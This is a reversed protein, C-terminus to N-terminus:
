VRSGSRRVEFSKLDLEDHEDTLLGNNTLNEFEEPTIYSFKFRTGKSQTILKKIGQNLEELSVHGNEDLDAGAIVSM